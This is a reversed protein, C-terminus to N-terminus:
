ESGNYESPYKAVGFLDFRSTFFRGFRGHVAVIAKPVKGDVWELWAAFPLYVYAVMVINSEFDFDFVWEQGIHFAVLAVGM